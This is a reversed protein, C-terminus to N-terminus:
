LKVYTNVVKRIIEKKNGKIVENKGIIVKHEYIDYEASVYLELREKGKEYYKGTFGHDGRTLEVYWDEVKIYRGDTGKQTKLEM